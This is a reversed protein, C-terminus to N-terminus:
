RQMTEEIGDRDRVEAGELEAVPSALGSVTRVIRENEFGGDEVGPSPLESIAM